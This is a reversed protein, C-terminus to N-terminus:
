IESTSKPLQSLDYERIIKGLIKVYLIRSDPSFELTGGLSAVADLVKSDVFKITTNTNIDKIILRDIDSNALLNGDSSVTTKSRRDAALRILIRGTLIDYVHVDFVSGMFGEVVIRTGDAVIRATQIRDLIMGTRILSDTEFHQFLVEGNRIGITDGSDFFFNQGGM